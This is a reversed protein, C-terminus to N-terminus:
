SPFSIAGRPPTSRHRDHGLFKPGSCETLAGHTPGAIRPRGDRGRSGPRRLSARM